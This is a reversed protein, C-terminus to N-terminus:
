EAPPIFGAIALPVGRDFTASYFYATDTFTASGFYATRVACQSLNFDILHADTLDLDTDPWYTVPPQEQTGERLHIRLIRQAVVRVECEQVQERYEALATRFDTNGDEPEPPTDPPEFPMRLYACFVSVVTARQGPNNQPDNFSWNPPKLHTYRTATGASRPQVWWPGSLGTV